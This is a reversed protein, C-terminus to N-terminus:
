LIFCLIGFVVGGGWVCLPYILFYIDGTLEAEIGIIALPKEGSLMLEHLSVLHLFQLLKNNNVCLMVQPM